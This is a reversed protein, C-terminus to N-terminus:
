THCSGTRIWGNQDLWQRVYLHSWLDLELLSCGEGLLEPVVRAAM